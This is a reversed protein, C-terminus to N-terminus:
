IGVPGNPDLLVSIIEGSTTLSASLARGMTYEATSTITLATGATSCTVLAGYSVAAETAWKTIGRIMVKGPEGSAPRDQLVGVARNTGNTSSVALTCYGLGNTAAGTTYVAFFQKNQLVTTAAVFSEEWAWGSRLISM